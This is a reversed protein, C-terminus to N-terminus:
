LSARRERPRVSQAIQFGSRLGELDDGCRNRPRSSRANTPLDIESGNAVHAQAFTAPCILSARTDFHLTTVVM